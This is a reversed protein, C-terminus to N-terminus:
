LKQGTSLDTLDVGDFAIQSVNAGNECDIDWNTSYTSIWQIQCDVKGNQTVIYASHDKLKPSRRGDEQSEWAVVQNLDTNQNPCNTVKSALAVPSILLFSATFALIRFGSKIRM